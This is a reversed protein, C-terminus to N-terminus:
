YTIYNELLSLKFNFIAIFFSTNIIVSIENLDVHYQSIETDPLDITDWIEAKIYVKFSAIFSFIILHSQFNSWIEFSNAMKESSVWIHM